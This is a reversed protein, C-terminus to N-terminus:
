ESRMATLPDVRAARRAPLVSAVVSVVVLLAAVVGLTVPDSPATEFLLSEIARGTLLALAIGIAIGISVQALGERLVMRLIAGRPAGLAMRVGIELTRRGVSYAVLGYIGVAALAIAMAAFSSLILTTFRERSTTAAVVQDMTQVDFLPVGPDVARLASRM